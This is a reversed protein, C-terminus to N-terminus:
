TRIGRGSSNPAKKNKKGYTMLLYVNVQKTMSVNRELKEFDHYKMLLELLIVGYSFIDTRKPDGNRTWISTCYINRM